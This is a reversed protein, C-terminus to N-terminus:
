ADPTSSFANQMIWGEFASGVQTPTAKVARAPKAFGYVITSRSREGISWRDANTPDVLDLKKSFTGRDKFVYGYSRNIGLESELFREVLDPISLGAVRDQAEPSLDRVFLVMGPLGGNLDQAILSKASRTGALIEVLEEDRKDWDDKVLEGSAFALDLAKTLVAQGAVTLEDFVIVDYAERRLSMWYEVLGRDERKLLIEGSPAVKIARSLAFIKSIDVRSGIGWNMRAVNDINDFDISGFVYLSLYHRKEIIEVLLDADIRHRKFISALRNRGGQNFFHATGEKVHYNALVHAVVGEHSWAFWDRLRYEFLHGFAPTGVDHLIIAAILAKTESESLEILGNEFALRVVGITHSYRRIEGLAALSPAGYNLLRVSSLRRVSPTLLLDGVFEPLTFAGYLPDHVKM